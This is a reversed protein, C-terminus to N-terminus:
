RPPKRLLRGPRAGTQEGNSFTVEGNVVTAQFGTSRQILRQDGGPLDNVLMPLEPSITDLDFVNLDAAFGERLLGRDRIGWASAPVQTIMRVAEPLSFEQRDRVWHGLLHTQISSDMIQSVHAGSDSFTMVTRPHRMVALLDDNDRRRVPQVFLQDFDTELGLDIILEVPDVNREQALEGVTPNPPLPRQLVLMSEYRPPRPDAGLTREYGASRASSVLRERIAPDSLLAKQKDLPEARLERWEPLADFPLRSRFSLVISIGRSHSLGFMQGGAANIEDIYPLQQSSTVGYTIPVGTELALRTMRRRYEEQEETGTAFSAREEALEFIGGNVKELVRVLRVVEDWAAFRSAVPQDASTSHNVSRSTTFGFAGAQLASALEREMADLEADDAPGEFARPGMAWTRLASHGVQAAYNIAKPQQDVATLYQAFSEWSWNIGAAMARASIDEARELNRVVLDESGRRVPALSFGCNGMVVTTVGHWCSSSGLVDWMVQADMHTHADVFGPTVILGEADIVEAGVLGSQGIEAIRGGQVGIDARFPETGSGDVVTGNRIVLDFAM